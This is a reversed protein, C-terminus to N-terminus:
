RAPDSQFLPLVKADHVFAFSVIYITLLATLLRQYRLSSITPHTYSNQFAKRRSSHAPVEVRSPFPADGVLPM